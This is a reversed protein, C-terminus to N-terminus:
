IPARIPPVANFKSFTVSSNDKTDIRHCYGDRGVYVTSETGDSQKMRYAHLTEGGVSKMGLDTATVANAGKTMARVKSAMDGMGSTKQHPMKMWNGGMKMYMGTGVVIMEVGQARMHMNGPKVVDITVSKAGKGMMEMQYSSLDAFRLM